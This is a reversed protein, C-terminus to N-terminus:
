NRELGVGKSMDFYARQVYSQSGTESDDIAGDKKILNGTFQLNVKADNYNISTGTTEPTNMIIPEASNEIFKVGTVKIKRGDPLYRIQGITQEPYFNDYQSKLNYNQRGKKYGIITKKDKSYIPIDSNEVEKPALSFRINRYNAKVSENFEKQKKEAEVIGGKVAFYDYSAKSTREIEDDLNLLENHLKELGKVGKTYKLLDKQNNIKKRINEPLKSTIEEIRKDRYDQINNSKKIRDSVDTNTGYHKEISKQEREKADARNWEEQRFTYQNVDYTTSDLTDIYNMEKAVKGLNGLFGEKYNLSGDKNFRIDRNNYIGSKGQQLLLEKLDPRSELFLEHGNELIFNNRETTTMKDYRGGLKETVTKVKDAPLTKIWKNMEGAFDADDIIPGPTYVSKYAGEPNENTYNKWYNNKHDEKQASTLSKNAELKKEFEEYNKKTQQINYIDGTSYREQLKNKYANLKAKLSGDLAGKGQIEKAFNDIDSNIENKINAAGEKHYDIFDIPLSRILEMTDAQQQIDDDKKLLAKAMLELPPQYIFDRNLEVPQAKFYRGM